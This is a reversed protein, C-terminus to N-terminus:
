GEVVLYRGDGIDFVEASDLIESDSMGGCDLNDKMYKVLAKKSDCVQACCDDLFEDAEELSDAVSEDFLKGQNKLFVQLVKKDYVM